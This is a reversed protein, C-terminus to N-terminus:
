DTTINNNNTRRDIMQEIINTKDNKTMGKDLRDNIRYNTRDIIKNIVTYNQQSFSRYISCNNKRDTM